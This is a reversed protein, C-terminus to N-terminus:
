SLATPLRIRCVHKQTENIELVQSLRLKTRIYIYTIGLRGQWESSIFSNISMHVDMFLIIRLTESKVPIVKM